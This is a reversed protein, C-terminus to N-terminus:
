DSPFFPDVAVGHRAVLLAVQKRMTGVEQTETEKMQAM